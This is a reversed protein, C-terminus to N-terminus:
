AHNLKKVDSIRNHWGKIYKKDKPRIQVIYDYYKGWEEYFRECLQEPDALRCAKYTMAGFIGDDKIGAARQLIIIAPSVGCNVACSFMPYALLSPIIDCKAPIWYRGRYTSHVLNMFQTDNRALKDLAQPSTNGREKWVDLMKWIKLDPNKNRALGCITEGGTDDPDNTYAGEALGVLKLAEEFKM